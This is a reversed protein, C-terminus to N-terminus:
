QPQHHSPVGPGLHESHRLADAVLQSVHENAVRYLVQTGNRRTTVLRAMRLKALHQSVAGPRKAVATSLENVSLERNDTLASLLRVRTADALLRFVEVALDVGDDISEENDAHMRTYNCVRAQLEAAVRMWVASRCVISGGHGLALVGLVLVAVGVIRGVFTVLVRVGVRVALAMVLRGPLGLVVHVLVTVGFVGLVGVVLVRMRVLVPGFMVASFGPSTGRM